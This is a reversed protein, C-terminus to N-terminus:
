LESTHEESRMGIDVQTIRSPKHTCMGLPYRSSCSSISSHSHHDAAPSHRNRFHLSCTKDAIRPSATQRLDGHAPTMPFARWPTIRLEKRTEQPRLNENGPRQRGRGGERAAGGGM